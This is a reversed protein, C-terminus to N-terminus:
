IGGGAGCWNLFAEQLSMAPEAVAAQGLKKEWRAQRAKTCRSQAGKPKVAVVAPSALEELEMFRSCNFCWAPSPNLADQQKSRQCHSCRYTDHGANM